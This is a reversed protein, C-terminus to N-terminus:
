RESSREDGQFRLLILSHAILNLAERRITRTQGPHPTELIQHWVGAGEFRPLTFKRSRNGGPM